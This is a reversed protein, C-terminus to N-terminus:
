QKVPRGVPIYLPFLTGRSQPSPSPYHPSPNTIAPLSPSSSCSAEILIYLSNLVFNNPFFSLLSDQSDWCSVQQHLLVQFVLSFLLFVTFSLLPCGILFFPDASSGGSQPSLVSHPNSLPSIQLPNFSILSCAPTSKRGGVCLEFLNLKSVLEDFCPKSDPHFVRHLNRLQRPLSPPM